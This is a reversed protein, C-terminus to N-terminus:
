NSPQLGSSLGSSNLRGVYQARAAYERRVCENTFNIIARADEQSIGPPKTSGHGALPTTNRRNYIELVRDLHEDSLSSFNRYKKFFRGLSQDQIKPNAVIHKAVTELISASAHLVEAYDSRQWAAEVREYLIGINDPAHPPYERGPSKNFDAVADNGSYGEAFRFVTEFFMEVTTLSGDSKLKDIPYNRTSSFDLEVVGSQNKVVNLLLLDTAGSYQWSTKAEIERRLCDFEAESFYWDAGNIRGVAIKGKYDSPQWYAGYGACFFHVNPGSRHHYYDLNPVIQEKGLPSQPRAFLLGAIRVSSWRASNTLEYCIEQYTYAALM